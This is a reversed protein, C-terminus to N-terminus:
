KIRCEYSEESNEKNKSTQTKEKQQMVTTEVSVINSTPELENKDNLSDGNDKVKATDAPAKESSQVAAVDTNENVNSDFGNVGGDQPKIKFNIILKRDETTYDFDELDENNNPDANFADFYVECSKEALKSEIVLTHAGSFKEPWFFKLTVGIDEEGSASTEISTPWRMDELNWKLKTKSDLLGIMEAANKEIWQKSENINVKGDKDTDAEKWVIPAYIPGTNLTCYVTIGESNVNVSNM